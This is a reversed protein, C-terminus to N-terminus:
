ILKTLETLSDIIVDPRYSIDFASMDQPRINEGNDRLMVATWGMQRPYYFDKSLNDGVYIYRDAGVRRTLEEFPLPTHKDRGLDGSVLIFRRDILKDLGLARIKNWQTVHRGDTIVALTVGAAALATLADRSDAPMDLVPIHSRYIDLFTDIDVGAAFTYSLREHLADFADPASEMVQMLEGASVGSLLEMERAVAMRGTTLYHREKYLTDDLDFAVCTKIDGRVAM